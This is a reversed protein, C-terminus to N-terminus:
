NQKGVLFATDITDNSIENLIDRTVECPFVGDKGKPSKALLKGICDDGIDTRDIDNFMQKAEIIWTKLKESNLEEIEDYKSFLSIKDLLTYSNSARNTIQEQTLGEDENRTKNPKYVFSVLQVFTKPNIIIDKEWHIPKFQNLKLYKWELMQMKNLELNTSQLFEIIRSIAHSDLKDENPEIETLVKAILNIDLNLEHKKMMYFLNSIFSVAKMYQKYEILQGVIWNIYSIDKDEVRYYHNNVNEWYLKQINENQEKLIGFLISNFRLSLLVESVQKDNLDNLILKDFSMNSIYSKACVLLNLEKSNLWEFIEDQHKNDTILFLLRGIEGAYEIKQILLVLSSFGDNEIIEIIAKERLEQILEDDKEYSKVDESKYSTPNLIDISGMNFLYFYKDILINPEIFNFAVELKDILVKPLSWDADSFKRHSHIKDRLITSISLKIKDDFLNIDLSIFIDIIKTYSDEYFKDINNFIDYWKQTDLGINNLLLNNINQYYLFSNQQSVDKGILEDWDHYKPRVIGSTTMHSDPLLELLLRWTIDPYKKYLAHELIQIKNEYTVSSYNVWGLFIDKLTNFPQNGMNSKIELKSLEALVLVVRPLLEHNWSIRELAWLLNCHFCGGMDGADEFLEQIKTTSKDELTKELATLFSIPSAEALLSIQKGYSYWVEVNLNIEFLEKLWYSITINIDSSYTMNEKGFVSILVLTDVISERISGSYKMEKDYSFWRENATIDWSPDIEKFVDLLIPKLKNIQTISIKHAILDWLNIKSIVQWINGVLRIPANQEEKLLTLNKEFEDYSLESLTEIIKIDDKDLRYWSNIFLITSLINIDYNDVWDPTVRENPKLLPHKVMAHLFGKTEDYIKWANDHSFGMEELTAIKQSKKIKSLEIINHSKDQMDITDKSEIVFHSNLIATGINNPIFDKYILVLDSDSQVLEDWSEQSTVIIVKSSFQIKDKLSALIFAYSEQKTTSVIIIKSPKRNLLDLLRTIENERSKLVLNTSLNINTQSSWNEFSQEIDFSNLPRKGIIRAFWRHVAPTLTLWLELDDSNIGKVEKWKLEKNKENEFYNKKAWTKTTAFIYSLNKDSSSDTRKKYDDEAKKNINVNTGFEWVSKGSPIFSNGKKVTLIGDWGGTLISDGSPIHIYKPEVTAMILKKILLPLIEQSERTHSSSWKDIENATIHWSM